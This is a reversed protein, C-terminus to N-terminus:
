EYMCRHERLWKNVNKVSAAKLHLAYDSININKIRWTDKIDELFSCGTDKYWLDPPHIRSGPGICRNNDFYSINEMNMKEVNLLCFYPFLRNPPADDFGVEGCCDFEHEDLKAFLDKISPKYLIDNDVLLCWKTQIYNKLAYDIASCHNKSIQKYDPIIKHNFNDVVTFVCKMNDDVPIKDGNDVIVIDYLEDDLQKYLSKIMMGTLINNNFSVTLLTIDQYNM